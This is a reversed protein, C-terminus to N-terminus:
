GPMWGYANVVDDTIRTVRRREFWARAKAAESLVHERPVAGYWWSSTIGAFFDYTGGGDAYDTHWVARSTSTRRLGAAKLMAEVEAERRPWFELRYGLVHRKDIARFSADIAEWYHEPGHTGVCVLGGPRTVRAMESVAAQQNPLLGLSMSTMSVDFTGTEFPLAEADLIRVSMMEPGYGAVRAKEEAKGLMLESIDGCVVRAAGAELAQLSLVGTGGAVDLVQRGRVDVNELLVRAARVQNPLGVEDYRGVHDSFEAEYGRRVRDKMKATDRTSGTMWALVNNANVVLTMTRSLRGTWLVPPSM